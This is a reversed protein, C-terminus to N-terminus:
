DMRSSPPSKAPYLSNPFFRLNEQFSQPLRKM